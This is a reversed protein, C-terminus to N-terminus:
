KIRFEFWEVNKQTIADKLSKETYSLNSKGSKVEVFVVKQINKKELGVFIIFDVPKGIFKAESPLFPFGELYPAFQESIQGGLVAKSRKIADERELEIRKPLYVFFFYLGLLIFGIAVGVSIYFFPELFNLSM